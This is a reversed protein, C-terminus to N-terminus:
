IIGSFLMIRLPYISTIGQIWSSSWYTTWKSLWQMGQSGLFIFSWYMLKWVHYTILFQKRKYALTTYSKVGWLVWRHINSEGLSQQHLAWTQYQVCVCLRPIPQWIFSSLISAFKLTWHHVETTNEKYGKEIESNYIKNAM